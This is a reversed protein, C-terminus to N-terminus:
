LAGAGGVLVADLSTGTARVTERVGALLGTGRLVIEGAVRMLGGNGGPAPSRNDLPRVTAGPARILEPGRDGVMAWGDTMITGGRALLPINPTELTLSPIDVGLISGGGVTFSMDNWKRIIWNIASKFSDTIGDWMGTAASKIKGPLGKVFDVVMTVKDVIWDKAKSAADKMWDWAVVFAHGLAKIADRFGDCKTWLIYIGAIMMMIGLVIWTAPFALLALNALWQGASYIANAVALALLLGALVKLLPMLPQIASKHKKLWDVSKEIYPVAQGLKDILASQVERKLGELRAKPNDGVATAMKDAAGAVDGMAATAKSPDLAFLAKQMDEAKTGFLATALASREAPDKVARLKDLVKDLGGAAKTGGAAMDATMQKANLGLAKFADTTTKSGDKSRIAFEKLGDAVTDVDRAGAKLGQTLLGIAQTGSLGLDRFETSYESFTDALDGALDGSEQYGRTLIDLAETADKALGNRIMQGAARSAETVDIGFVDALAMAKSSVSEIEENTADEDLLGSSLISRVAVMTDELSEGLGKNYMRGAVEGMEKAYEADGLQAAFKAKTASLDLSALLGAGIAVAGAVGIQKAKETIKDKNDEWIKQAKSMDKKLQETDAGLIAVLEGLKLM